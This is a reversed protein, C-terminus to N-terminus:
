LPFSIAPVPLLPIGKFSLVAGQAVGVDEDNDLSISTARLVWDPVWDPGPKRRCTTYSAQHIVTHNEDLFDAREAQGQGDSKLFHYRPENFFGEFAEVKLELLPGEFVDGKRNIRVHGTARAQDSPQDYELRDARIVTGAKRLLANGEIVTDLDPRGSIRDGTVFVPVKSAQSPALAEELMSTFKLPLADAVALTPAPATGQACVPTGALGAVVVLSSLGVRHGPSRFNLDRM